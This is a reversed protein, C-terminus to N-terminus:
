VPSPLANSEKRLRHNKPCLNGRGPRPTGFINLKYTAALHAPTCPNRRLLIKTLAPIRVPAAPAPLRKRVELGHFGSISTPLQLYIGNYKTRPYKKQGYTGGGRAPSGYIISFPPTSAYSFYWFFQAGGPARVLSEQTRTCHGVALSCHGTRFFPLPSWIRGGGGRRGRPKRYKDLIPAAPWLIKGIRSGGGPSPGPAGPHSTPVM